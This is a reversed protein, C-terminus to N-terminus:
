KIDFIENKIDSIYKNAIDNISEFTPHGTKKNKNVEDDVDFYPRIELTDSLDITRTNGNLKIKIKENHEGDIGINKLTPSDFFKGNKDKIFTSLKDRFSFGDKKATIKLELSLIDDDFEELGLHDIIDPPLNFRRLSIQKLTGRSIYTQALDKSVYPSFDVILSENVKSIFNKFVSQFISNIGYIGIRQLILFAVNGKEPIWILYYFPKIDLDDKQKTYVEEKTNRNVLRSQIGYDGSEIIGSYIGKKSNIKLTDSKFQISKKRKEDVNLEDNFKILRKIFNTMERNKSFTNYFSIYDKKRKERIRFTYVELKIEQAM